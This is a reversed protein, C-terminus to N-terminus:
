ATAGSADPVAARRALCAHDASSARECSSWRLSSSRGRPGARHALSALEVRSTRRSWLGPTRVQTSLRSCEARPTDLM